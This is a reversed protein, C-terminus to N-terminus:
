TFLSLAPPCPSVRPMAKRTMNIQTNGDGKSECQGRGVLFCLCLSSSVVTQLAAPLSKKGQEGLLASSFCFPCLLPQSSLTLHPFRAVPLLAMQPLSEVGSGWVWMPGLSPSRHQSEIGLALIPPTFRRRPWTSGVESPFRQQLSPPSPGGWLHVSWVSTGMREGVLVVWRGVYNLCGLYGDPAQAQFM